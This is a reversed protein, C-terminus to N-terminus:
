SAAWAALAIAAPALAITVSSVPKASRGALWRVIYVSRERSADQRALRGCQCIPSGSLLRREAEISSPGQNHAEATTKRDTQGTEAAGRRHWDGRVDGFLAQAM